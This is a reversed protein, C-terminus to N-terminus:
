GAGCESGLRQTAAEGSLGVAVISMPGVSSVGRPRPCTADWAQWGEQFVPEASGRWRASSGCGLHGSTRHSRERCLHPNRQALRMISVASYPSPASAYRDADPGPALPRLGSTVTAQIGPNHAPGCLSCVVSSGNM